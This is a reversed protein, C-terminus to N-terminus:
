LVLLFSYILLESAQFRCRAAAGSGANEDTRIQLGAEPITGRLSVCFYTKQTGRRRKVTKSIHWYNSFDLNFVLLGMGLQTVLDVLRQKNSDVTFQHVRPIKFHSGTPAPLHPQKPALFSRLHKIAHWEFLTLIACSNSTSLPHLHNIRPVLCRFSLWDWLRSSGNLIVWNPFLNSMFCDPRCYM